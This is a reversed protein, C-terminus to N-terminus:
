QAYSGTNMSLQQLRGPTFGKPCEFCRICVEGNNFWHTGKRAESLKRKHEESLHKGKHAESWRKKLEEPLKKGRNAESIKRKWEESLHRGKETESIKKRTEKSKEKSKNHLSKHEASKLFILEEAPRDYYMNLAILEARSIDVFRKEGDSSHTELRHHCDWVQTNDAVAKDYNEILEPMRCFCCKYPTGDKKLKFRSINIM